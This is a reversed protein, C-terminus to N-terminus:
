EIVEGTTIQVYEQGESPPQIKVSLIRWDARVGSPFAPCPDIRIAADDGVIYSGLVPEADAKLTVTPPVVPSRALAADTTVHDDLTTQISIDSYSPTLVLPPYADRLDDNEGISTFKSEGEGTGYGIVDTAVRTGDEPQSYDVINGGYQGTGDDTYELVIGGSRGRRPYSLTLARHPAGDDGWYYDIAYDFGDIVASLENLAEGVPKNDSALYTRDRMRGSTPNDPLEIGISGWATQAHNVLGSAIALQDDTSAHFTLDTKIPVHDLWSELSQGTLSVLGNGSLSRDPRGWIIWGGLIVGDRIVYVMTRAPDSAEEFTARVAPSLNPDGWNMAAQFSGVGNLMLTANVGILPLEGIIVNDRVTAALYTYEAAPKPQKRKQILPVAALAMPAPM